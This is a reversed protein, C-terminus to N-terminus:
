EGTFSERVISGNEEKQKILEVRRQIENLKESCFAVLARGEEFAALMKDLPLQGNEMQAVLQDLRDSTAEFTKPARRKEVDDAM